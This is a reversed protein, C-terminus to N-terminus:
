NFNLGEFDTSTLMCLLGNLLNNVGSGNNILLLELEEAPLADSILYGQVEDCSQMCQFLLQDGTRITSIFNGDM